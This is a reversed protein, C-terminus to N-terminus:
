VASAARMEWRVDLSIKAFLAEWGEKEPWAKRSMVMYYKIVNDQLFRDGFYM